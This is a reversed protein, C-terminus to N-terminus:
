PSLYYIRKRREFAEPGGEVHYVVLDKQDYRDLCGCRDVWGHDADAELAIIQDADASVIINANRTAFLCQRTGARLRITSVIGQEIGPAHLADEPQDVILPFDGEALAVMLVVMCKQGHSLEEIQKYQGGEVQLMVEIVDNVDTLQLSFLNGLRDKECVNDWYKRLRYSPIKSQEALDDFEDNLMTKVFSVPHCNSTISDYEEVRLGSGIGIQELVMRFQSKNARAHVKLRIKNELAESLENAKGKRKETIENRCTQLKTLFGDREEKLKAIKPIVESDLTRKRENLENIRNQLFRSKEALAQIGTGDKDIEQLVKNYEEQEKEFRLEWEKQIVTIADRREQLDKKIQELLKNRSEEWEGHNIIIRTLLDQNPLDDMKDVFDLAINLFGTKEEFIEALTNYKALVNNIIDKEDLWKHHNIIHPDQLGKDIENKAEILTPLERIEVDLNLKKLQETQIQNANESLKIKLDSIGAVEQICDILDDTLSLRVEPNRSFEIIESQSFAKIPFFSQMEIPDDLKESNGGEIRTVVPPSPPDGWTREVLYKAEGKQILIHVTNNSKLQGRLMGQVEEKIKDVSTTQSLGFRLLEIAVSKGAGTDGILCNVTENLRIAQENLFGGTVWMGLILNEPVQIEDCSLKLRMQPDILALKLGSISRNGMKIHSYSSGMNNVDHQPNGAALSDSSQICTMKRDFTLGVGKQYKERLLHDKIELARLGSAMYAKEKEDGVPITKLFGRETDVHAGIAVGGRREIEDCIEVVGMSSATELSGLKERVFGVAILLDEIEQSKTGVDFIALIHGQHTSIEVGPFVTLNTGDAEKQIDDCMFANNHDTIAIIDLGKQLAIEVIEKPGIAKSVESSDSSAGTHVHLDAKLWCAGKPQDIIEQVIAMIM